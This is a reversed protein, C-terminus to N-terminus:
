YLEYNDGRCISTEQWGNRCSPPSQYTRSPVSLLLLEFRYPKCSFSAREDSAEGHYSPLPFASQGIESRHTDYTKPFCVDSKWKLVISPPFYNDNMSMSWLVIRNQPTKSRWRREWLFDQRRSCWHLFPLNLSVSHWRCRQSVCLVFCWSSAWFM